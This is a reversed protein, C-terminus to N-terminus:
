AQPEMRARTTITGLSAGGVLVVPVALRLRVGGTDGDRAVQVGGRLAGPLVSRAAAEPDAGLARARAAERAAAGAMSWAQGAVVAQWALLAVLALLPLLAVFEVSAQGDQGHSRAM